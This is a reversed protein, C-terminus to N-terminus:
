GRRARRANSFAFGGLALLAMASPEPIFLGTVEGTGRGAFSTLNVGDDALSSIQTSLSVDIPEGIILGDPLSQMAVSAVSGTFAFQAFGGFEIFTVTTSILDLSVFETPSLNLTLSGGLAVVNDGSADIDIVSPIEFDLSIDSVFPSSPSSSGDVEVVVASLPDAGAPNADRVTSGDYVVDVGTFQIEITSAQASVVGLAAAACVSAAFFSTKHM